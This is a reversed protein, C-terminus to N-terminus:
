VGAHKLMIYARVCKCVHLRLCRACRSAESCISPAYTVDCMLLKLMYARVCKCVDATKTRSHHTALCLGEGSVSTCGTGILGPAEETSVSTGAEKKGHKAKGDDDHWSHEQTGRRGQRDM